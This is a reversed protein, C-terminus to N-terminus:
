HSNVQVTLNDLQEARECGLRLLDGAVQGVFGRARGFPLEGAALLARTHGGFDAWSKHFRATMGMYPIGLTRAFVNTSGATEILEVGREIVDYTLVDYDFDDQAM